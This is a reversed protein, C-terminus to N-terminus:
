FGEKKKLEYDDEAMTSLYADVKSNYDNILKYAEREHQLSEGKSVFSAIFRAAVYGLEDDIDLDDELSHPSEPMRIFTNGPGERLIREGPKFAFLNLADSETAIKLYAYNLLMILEDDNDPLVFDGTLLATALDKVNQFTMKTKEM